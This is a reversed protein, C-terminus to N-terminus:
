LGLLSVSYLLFAVHAETGTVRGGAGRGRARVCAAWECQCGQQPGGQHGKRKLIEYMYTIEEGLVQRANAFWTGSIRRSLALPELIEHWGTEWPIPRAAVLVRRLGSVLCSSVFISVLGSSYVRLISVRIAQWLLGGGDRERVPDGVVVWVTCSGRKRRRRGHAAWHPTHGNMAGLISVKAIRHGQAQFSHHM